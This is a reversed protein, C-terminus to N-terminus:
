ALRKERRRKAAGVLGFGAVLMAWSAPEPIGIPGVQTEDLIVEAQWVSADNTVQAVFSPIGGDVNFGLACFSSVSLVCGNTHGDTAVVFLASIPNFSFRLAYPINTDIVSLASADASYSQTPDFTVSYRLFLPDVPPAVDGSLPAWDTARFHGFVTKTTTTAMSASAAMALVCAVLLSRIM